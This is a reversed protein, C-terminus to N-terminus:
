ANSAQQIKTGYLYYWTHHLGIWYYDMQVSPVRACAIWAAGALGISTVEYGPLTALEATVSATIRALTESLLGKPKDPHHDPLHHGRLIRKLEKKADFSEPKPCTQVLVMYMAPLVFLAVLTLSLRSLIAVGLLGGGYWLLDRNQEDSITTTSTGTTSSMAPTTASSSSSLQSSKTKAQNSIFTASYYGTVSVIKVSAATLKGSADVLVQASVAQQQKDNTTTRVTNLIGVVQNSLSVDHYLDFFYSDTVPVNRRLLRVLMSSSTANATTTSASGTPANTTKYQLAWGDNPKIRRLHALAAESSALSM